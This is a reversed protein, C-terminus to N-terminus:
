GQKLNRRWRSGGRVAATEGKGERGGERVRVGAGAAVGAGGERM